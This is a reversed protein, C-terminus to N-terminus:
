IKAFHLGLLQELAYLTEETNKHHIFIGGANVWLDKYKLYDDILVDGPHMYKIKEASMCTIIPTCPFHRAAWSIKQPEAWGGLPCGTLIVPNLYKVATFLKKADPMLPITSYFGNSYNRLAAWFQPTGHLDEYVRPPMGLVNEAHKDFDALVGDCDLFLTM